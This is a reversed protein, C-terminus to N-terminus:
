LVTKATLGFYLCAVSIGLHLWNDPTNLNLLTVVQPINMFGAIAVVGYVVGFLLCFVKAAKFSALAAIIAALGSLIHVINHTTNIGFIILSHDHGGTISGFIGIALLVVGLALTFSKIM